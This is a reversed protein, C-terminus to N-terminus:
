THDVSLDAKFVDDAGRPLAIMFRALGPLSIGRLPGRPATDYIM